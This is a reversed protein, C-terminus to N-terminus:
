NASAYRQVYLECYLKRAKPSGVMDTRFSASSLRGAWAKKEVADIVKLSSVFSGELKLSLTQVTFQGARRTRPDSMSKIRVNNAKCLEGFQELFKMEGDSVGQGSSIIKEIELLQETLASIREENAKMSTVSALLYSNESKLQVTKSIAFYYALIALLLFLGVLVFTKKRFDM